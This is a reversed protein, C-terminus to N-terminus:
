FTISYNFFPVYICLPTGFIWYICLLTSSTFHTVKKLRKEPHFGDRVDTLMCEESDDINPITLKGQAVYNYDKVDNSLACM